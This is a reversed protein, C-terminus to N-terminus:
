KIVQVGNKKMREISNELQEISCDDVQYTKYGGDVFWLTFRGDACLCAQNVYNDNLWPKLMQMFDNLKCQNM